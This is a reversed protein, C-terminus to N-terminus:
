SLYNLVMSNGLKFNARQCRLRFPRFYFLINYNCTNVNVHIINFRYNNIILNKTIIHCLRHDDFKALQHIKGAQIEVTHLSINM